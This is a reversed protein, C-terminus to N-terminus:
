EEGEFDPQGELESHREEERSQRGAAKCLAYMMLLIFLIILALIAIVIYKM